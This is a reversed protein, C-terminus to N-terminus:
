YLPIETNALTIGKRHPAPLRRAFFSAVDGFGFDADHGNGTADGYRRAAAAGEAALRGGDLLDDAELDGRRAANIFGHRYDDLLYLESEVGAAVLATHLNWSHRWSVLDDTTGHCIQFPPADPRVHHLPSAAEAIEPLEDPAGGLFRDSWSPGSLGPLTALKPPPASATMDTPGYAEAVARVSVDGHVDGEGPLRERNGLLGALAALHGGASAGWLGLADPAIGLAETLFM